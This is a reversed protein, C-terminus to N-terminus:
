KPSRFDSYKWKGKCDLPSGAIWALRQTPLPEQTSYFGQSTDFGCGLDYHLSAHFGFTADIEAGAIDPVGLSFIPITEDSDALPIDDKAEVSFLNVSGGKLFQELASQSLNINYNLPGM